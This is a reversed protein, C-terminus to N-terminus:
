RKEERERERERESDKERERERARERERTHGEFSSLFKRAIKKCIQFFFIQSWYINM